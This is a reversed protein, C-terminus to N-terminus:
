LFFGIEYYKALSIISYVDLILLFVLPILFLLPSKFRPWRELSILLGYWGVVLLTITPIVMPLAYRAVPYYIKYPTMVYYSGRILAAGWAAALGIVFLLGIEWPFKRRKRVALMIFGILGVLTIVALSRYPKHGLLPVNGWGFKAWFTRLLRQITIWYYEGGTEWDFITNLIVSPTNYNQDPLIRVGVEDVWSRFRPWSQEASSNRLLNSFPKGGWIGTKGYKNSYAPAETTPYEGLVLVVGDVFITVAEDIEGVLPEISVFSRYTKGGMQTVFAVFKPTEDIMIEEYIMQEGPYTRLVPSRVQIPNSAWMWAGLTVTQQSLSNGVDSPLAQRIWINRPSPKSPDIVMQLAHEGVPAQGTAVRANVDQFTNRTWYAADGWSIVAAVLILAAAGLGVWIFLRRRGRVLTFALVVFMLPIAIYATGKTFVSLGALFCLLVFGFFSFGRKIMRVSVWLFMSLIAVAAVDNNVSTMIDVLGPLLAMTLPVLWRLPSGPSTLEKAVGWAALVSILYLFLSVFRAAHLQATISQSSFFSLPLAALLYYLAPEDLQPYGGIKVDKDPSLNPRIPLRDYFGHEVMSEVVQRSMVPDYDGAEPLQRNNAILWAHEFHNPEDYHQWPPILYIYILGHVLAVILVIGLVLYDNKCKSSTNQNMVSFQTM